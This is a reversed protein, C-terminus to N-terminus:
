RTDPLEELPPVAGRTETELNSDTILARSSDPGPVDACFDAGPRNEVSWPLTSAAGDAADGWSFRVCDANTTGLTAWIALILSPGGYATTYM